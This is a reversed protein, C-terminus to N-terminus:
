VPQVAWLLAREVRQTDKSHERSNAESFVRGVNLMVMTTSMICRSSNCTVHDFLKNATHKHLFIMSLAM